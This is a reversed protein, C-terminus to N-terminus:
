YTAERIPAESFEDNLGVYELATREYASNQRMQRWDWDPLGLSDALKRRVHQSQIRRPFWVRGVENSFRVYIYSRRRKVLQALEHIARITTGPGLGLDVDSHAFPMIHLHAHTVGCGGDEDSGVGHEFEICRGHQSELRSRVKDALSAVTTLMPGPLMATSNWHQKPAVLIHGTALAGLSPFALAHLNEDLVRQRSGRLVFEDCFCCDRIM